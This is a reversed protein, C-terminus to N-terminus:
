KNVIVCRDIIVDGLIGTVLGKLIISSGAQYNGSLQEKKDLTCSVSSIPNGSDLFIITQEGEKKIESITGEIQTVLMKDATGVYKIMANEESNTFEEVLSAANVKMNPEGLTAHPKNYQYYMYIGAGIFALILLYIFKRLM